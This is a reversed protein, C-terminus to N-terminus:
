NHDERKRKVTIIRKQIYKVEFIKGDTMLETVGVAQKRREKESM